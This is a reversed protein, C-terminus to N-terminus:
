SVEQQTPEALEHHEYVLAASLVGELNQMAMITASCATRDDDEVTVVLKGSGSAAHVEVGALAELRQRVADMEGQRAHVVLSCINM